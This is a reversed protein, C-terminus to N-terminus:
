IGELHQLPSFIFPLIFIHNSISIYMSMNTCLCVYMHEDIEAKGMHELFLLRSFNYECM